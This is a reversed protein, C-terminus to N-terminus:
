RLVRVDSVGGGKDFLDDGFQLVPEAGRDGVEFGGDGGIDAIAGQRRGVGRGGPQEVIRRDAQGGGAFLAFSLLAVVEGKALELARADKDSRHRAGVQEGIIQAVLKTQERAM